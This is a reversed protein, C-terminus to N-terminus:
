SGGDDPIDGTVGLACPDWIGVARDKPRLGSATAVTCGPIGQVHRRKRGCSAESSVVQGVM